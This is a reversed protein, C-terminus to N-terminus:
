NIYKRPLRKTFGCAIEYHITHSYDAMDQLSIEKDGDKGIITVKTGPEMQHPLRVMFQDMCVQGIVPCFQGDILVHFGKLNRHFGDAYGIPVTGIWQDDGTTYTAGYGISRGPKVLKVYSLETTVTMAPELKFPPKLAGASPNLGYGAAGYRIMNGNCKQHWLSTASNSVHVFKPRPKVVEMLKNFRNVQLKFYKDDPSDATAFHTFIGEFDLQNHDQKIAKLAQKLGTQTQFGIRGMGTDLGIHVRLPDKISQKRLLQAAKQLWKASSVTLSVHEKAAVPVANLDTLGLVLIPDQLGAKRLELAEDLIAVCFGSAGAKKAVKAVEVAGHGYGNAKVVMFLRTGHDLREYELHINHYLAARNVIVQANRHVGVAM